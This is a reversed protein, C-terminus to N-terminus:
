PVRRRPEELALAGWVERVATRTVESEVRHVLRAMVDRVADRLEDHGHGHVRVPDRGPCRVADKHVKETCSQTEVFSVGRSKNATDMQDGRLGGKNGDERDGHDHSGKDDM